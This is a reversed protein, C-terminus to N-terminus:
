RPLKNHLAGTEAYGDCMGPQGYDGWDTEQMEAVGKRRQVESDYRVM